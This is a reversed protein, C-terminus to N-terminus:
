FAEKIAEFCASTHSKQVGPLVRFKDIVIKGIDEISKGRVKILLDYDGTIMYVEYVGPIKAIRSALQRHQINSNPTISLFVFVTTPLDIKDYGLQITFSKIVGNNVMKKIRDRITSRPMETKTAIKKTSERANKKLEALIIKDKKDIMTDSINITKDINQTKKSKLLVLLNINVIKQSSNNCNLFVRSMKPTFIIIQFNKGLYKAM